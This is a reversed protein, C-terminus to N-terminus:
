YVSLSICIRDLPTAMCLVILGRLALWTLVSSYISQMEWGSALEPQVLMTHYCFETPEECGEFECVKTFLRWDFAVLNRLDQDPSGLDAFVVIRKKPLDPRVPSCTVLRTVYQFCISSTRM